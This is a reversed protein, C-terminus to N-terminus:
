FPSGQVLVVVFGHKVHPEDDLLDLACSQQEKAAQMIRLSVPSSKQWLGFAEMSVFALLQWHRSQELHGPLEEEDEETCVNQLPLSHAVPPSLTHRSFPMLQLVILVSGQM